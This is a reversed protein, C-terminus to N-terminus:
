SHRYTPPASHPNQGYQLQQQPYAGPPPAAAVQPQPQQATVQHSVSYDMVQGQNPTYSLRAVHETRQQYVPQQQPPQQYLVQQQQQQQPPQQYVVHQQPPPKQHYVVQQQPPPPPQYVVQQQQPAPTTYYVPAPAAQTYVVPQSANSPNFHQHQQQQVPYTHQPTPHYSQQVPAPQYSQQVPAPHYSQQVPTPAPHHVLQQVSAPATHYQPQQPPPHTPQVAAPITQEQPVAVAVAVPVAPQLQSPQQPTPRLALPAAAPTPGQHSTPQAIPKFSQQQKKDILAQLQDISLEGHPVTPEDGTSKSRGQHNIAILSIVSVFLSNVIHNYIRM